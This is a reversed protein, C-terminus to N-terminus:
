CLPLEVVQLSNKPLSSNTPSYWAEGSLQLAGGSSSRFWPAKSANKQLFLLGCVEVVVVIIDNCLIQNFPTIPFSIRHIDTSQPHAPSPHSIRHPSTHSPLLWSGPARAEFAAKVYPNGGGHEGPRCVCWARDDQSM